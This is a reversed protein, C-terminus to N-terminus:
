SEFETKPALKLALTSEQGKNTHPVRFVCLLSTPFKEECYRRLLKNVLNWVKNRFFDNRNRKNRTLLFSMDEHHEVGDQIEM